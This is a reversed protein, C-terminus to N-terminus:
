VSIPAEIVKSEDDAIVDFIENCQDIDSQSVLGSQQLAFVVFKHRNVDEFTKIAGAKVMQKKVSKAEAESDSIHLKEFRNDVEFHGLWSVFAEFAKLSYITSILSFFITFVKTSNRGYSGNGYGVTTLITASHGFAQYWDMLPENLAFFIQGGFLLVFFGIAYLTLDRSYSSLEGTPIKGQWVWLGSLVLALYGAILALGIILYLSNVIKFWNSTPYYDGFGVTTLSIAVFYFCDLWNMPESVKTLIVGLIYYSFFWLLAWWNLNDYSNTFL